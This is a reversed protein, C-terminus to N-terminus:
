SARETPTKQDERLRLAAEVAEVRAELTAIEIARLAVLALQALRGAKQLPDLDPNMTLATIQESVLCRVDAATRIAQPDGTRPHLLAHDDGRRSM